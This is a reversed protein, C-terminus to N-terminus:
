CLFQDNFSAETCNASATPQPTPTPTPSPAPVVKPKVTAIKKPATTNAKVIPIQVAAATTTKAQAIPIIALPSTAKTVKVENKQVQTQVDAKLHRTKASLFVAGTILVIILISIHLIYKKM